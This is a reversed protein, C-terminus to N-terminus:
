AVIELGWNVERCFKTVFSIFIHANGFVNSIQLLEDRGYDTNRNVPNTSSANNKFVSRVVKSSKHSSARSCVAQDKEEESSWSSVPIKLPLADEAVQYLNKRIKTKPGVKKLYEPHLQLRSHHHKIHYVFIAPYLLLVLYAVM